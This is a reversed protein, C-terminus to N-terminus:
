KSPTPYIFFFEYVINYSVYRPLKHEIDLKDLTGSQLKALDRAYLFQALQIQASANQIQGVLIRVSEHQIQGRFLDPLSLRAKRNVPGFDCFFNLRTSGMKNRPPPFLLYVLYSTHKLEIKKRHMFCRQILM